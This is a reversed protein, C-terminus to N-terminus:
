QFSSFGYISIGYVAAAPSSVPTVTLKDSYALTDSVVLDIQLAANTNATTQAKNIAKISNRITDIANPIYAGATVTWENQGGGLCHIYIEQIVFPQRSYNDHASTFFM